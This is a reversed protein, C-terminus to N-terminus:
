VLPSCCDLTLTCSNKKRSLCTFQLCMLKIVSLPFIILKLLVWDPAEDRLVTEGEQSSYIYRLLSVMTKQFIDRNCQNVFSVWWVTWMSFVIPSTSQLRHRWPSRVNFVTESIASQKIRAVPNIHITILVQNIYVIKTVIITVVKMVIM